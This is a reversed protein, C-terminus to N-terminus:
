PGGPSLEKWNRLVQVVGVLRGAALCLLGDGSDLWPAAPSECGVPASRVLVCLLFLSPGVPCLVHGGADGVGLDVAVPDGCLCPYPIRNWIDGRPDGSDPGVGPDGGVHGGNECLGVGPGETCPYGPDHVVGPVGPDGGHGVHDGIEPTRPVCPARIEAPYGDDPVVGPGHGRKEGGHVESWPVGLPYPHYPPSPLM